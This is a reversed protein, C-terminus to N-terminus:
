SPLITQLMKSWMIDFVGLIVAFIAVTLGVVLSIRGGNIVRSYVDRGLQDTGFLGADGPPKLRSMPNLSVPDLAFFPGLIAVFIIIILIISGWFVNKNKIVLQFVSLDSAKELSSLPIERSM